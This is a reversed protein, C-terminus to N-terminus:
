WRFRSMSPRPSAPDTGDDEPGTGADGANEADTRADGIDRAAEKATDAHTANAEPGHAVAGMSGPETIGSPPADAEPAETVPSPAALRPDTQTPATDPATEPQPTATAAEPVPAVATLTVTDRSGPPDKDTPSRPSAAEEDADEAGTEAASASADAQADSGTDAGSGADDEYLALLRRAEAIRRYTVSARLESELDAIEAKLYHAFNKM